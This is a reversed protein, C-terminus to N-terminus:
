TVIRMKQLVIGKIFVIITYAYQINFWHKLYAM